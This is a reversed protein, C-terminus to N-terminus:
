SNSGLGHFREHFQGNIHTGDVLYHQGPSYTPRKRPSIKESSQVQGRESVIYNAREFDGFGLDQLRFEGLGAKMRLFDLDDDTLASRKKARGSDLFVRYASALSDLSAGYKQILDERSLRALHKLSTSNYKKPAM